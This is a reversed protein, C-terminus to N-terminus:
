VSTAAGPTNVRTVTGSAIVQEGDLLLFTATRQAVAWSLPPDFDTLTVLADQGGLAYHAEDMSLTCRWSAGPAARATETPSEFRLELRRGDFLAAARGVGAAGTAPHVYIRACLSTM